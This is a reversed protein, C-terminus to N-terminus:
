LVFVAVSLAPLVPSVFLVDRVYEYLKLPGVIDNPAGDKVNNFFPLVAVIASVIVADDFPPVVSVPLKVAPPPPIVVVIRLPLLGDHVIATLLMVVLPAVIVNLEQVPSPVM